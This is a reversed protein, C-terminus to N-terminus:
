LGNNSPATAIAGQSQQIGALQQPSRGSPAGAPTGVLPSSHFQITLPAGSTSGGVRTKQEEQMARQHMAIYQSQQEAYAKAATESIM